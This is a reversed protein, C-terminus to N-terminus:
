DMIHLQGSSLIETLFFVYTDLYSSGIDNTKSQWLRILENNDITLSDQFYIMLPINLLFILHFIRSEIKM